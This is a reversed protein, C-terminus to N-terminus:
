GMPLGAGRLAAVDAELLAADRIMQTKQWSTITFDPRAALFRKATQKAEDPQGNQQYLIILDILGFGQGPIRADYAKFVSIAEDVQGAL